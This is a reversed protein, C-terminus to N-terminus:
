IGYYICNSPFWGRAGDVTIGDWWGTELTSMVQIVDNKKFAITNGEHKPPEYDYLAKVSFLSQGTM